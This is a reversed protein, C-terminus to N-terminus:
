QSEADGLKADGSWPAPRPPAARTRRGEVFLYAHIALTVGHLALTAGCLAGVALLLLASSM